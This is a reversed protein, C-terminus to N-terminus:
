LTIQKKELSFRPPVVPTPYKGEYQFTRNRGYRKAEKLTAEARSLFAESTDEAAAETVACSVTVRIDSGKHCFRSIEVLQRIREAVSTACRIDANPFIMAFRQGSFRAALSAERREAEILQGIAHLMEDGAKHGLRENVQSFRDVDIMAVSLQRDRHSDDDWWRHLEAELGARSSLGTLPDSLTTPSLSDLRQEDRAVATGAADLVDRLQDNAGLLEATQGVMQLCGEELDDEYNFSEISESANEIQKEQRDVATKVDDCLWGLESRERHLEDFHVNAEQRCELYENTAEMLSDLCEEIAAADAASLCARLGEDAASLRDHYRFVGSQFDDIVAAAPSERRDGASPLQSQDSDDSPSGSPAEAAAEIASGDSTEDFLESLLADTGEAAGTFQGLADDGSWAAGSATVVRYRRGLYVAVAFGMSLNLVGVIFIYFLV